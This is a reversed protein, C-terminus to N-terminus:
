RGALHEDLIASVQQEAMFGHTDDDGEAIIDGEGNWGVYEGITGEDALHLAWEGHRARFYFRRGGKTVGEAQTPCAGGCYDLDYHEREISAM